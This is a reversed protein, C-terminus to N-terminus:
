AVAIVDWGHARIADLDAKSVVRDACALGLLRRPRTAAVYMNALIKREESGPAKKKGPGAAVQKIAKAVSHMKRFETDLVLTADHTQGKVSAITGVRITVPEGDVDVVVRDAEPLEKCEALEEGYGLFESVEPQKRSIAGLTSLDELLRDAMSTWDAESLSPLLLVDSMWLKAARATAPREAALLRLLRTPPCERWEAPLAESMALLHAVGNTLAAVVEVQAGGDRGRASASRVCGLLTRPRGAVAKAGACVGPCYTPIALAATAGTGPNMRHGVAWIDRAAEGLRAVVERAFFAIVKTESGAPYVLVVVQDEPGTTATIEQERYPSLRSAFGAIASGFRRSDAVDIVTGSPSWAAENGEFSYITQNVDGLRQVVAGGNRIEDLVDLALRVTDQAEDLIILKYRDAVSRALSPLGRLAYLAVALLDEYRYIGRKTLTDKAEQLATWTPSTTDNLNGVSKLRLARTADLALGAAVRAAGDKLREASSATRPLRAQGALWGRAGSRCLLATAAADHIENDVITMKMNLGRLAPLAIHEHVFRTLTGAFHPYRLFASGSAREALRVEIERRAVNTHSVIAIGGQKSTWRRALLEIKASLLTTKGAGPAAQVDCHTSSRLFAQRQPHSFDLGGLERGLAEIEALTIDQLDVLMM